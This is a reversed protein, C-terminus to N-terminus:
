SNSLSLVYRGGPLLFLSSTRLRVTHLLSCFVLALTLKLLEEPLSDLFSSENAPLSDTYSLSCNKIIKAPFFNCLFVLVSCYTLLFLRWPSAPVIIEKLILLPANFIALEKIQLKKAELKPAIKKVVAM